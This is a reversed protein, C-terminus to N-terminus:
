IGGIFDDSSVCSSIFLLLEEDSSMKQYSMVCDRVSQCRYGRRYGLIIAHL